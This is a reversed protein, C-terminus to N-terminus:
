SQKAPEQKVLEVDLTIQVDKSVLVGGGELAQNWRLGFDERNITTTATASTRTGGWPDKTVGSFGTVDFTVEKTVDRITLDGTMAYHGDGLKEVHKSKFALKPYKEAAFFDDSKLHADRKEVRTDVSAADATAEVTFTSPNSEDFNVTGGFTDFNGRVTSIMMHKVSFTVMSHPMDITWTAAQAALALALAAMVMTSRLISKM